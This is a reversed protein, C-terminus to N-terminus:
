IRIRNGRKGKKPRQEIVSQTYNNGFEYELFRNSLGLTELKQYTIEYEGPRYYGYYFVNEGSNYIKIFHKVLPLWGLPALQIGKLLDMNGFGFANMMIEAKITFNKMWQGEDDEFIKVGEKVDYAFPNNGLHNRVYQIFFDIQNDDEKNKINELFQFYGPLNRRIGIPALHAFSNPGFALGNRYFNYAFMDLGLKVIEEDKSYQTAEWTSMYLERQYPTLRGGNRFEIEPVPSKEPHKVKLAQFLSSNSLKPKATIQTRCLRIGFLLQTVELIDRYNIGGMFPGFYRGGDKKIKRTVSFSPFEERMNVKIYPYTKDDKLLINYKPKYKKILNNELALADIESNTIVYNFDAINAVMQMVKAPKPSNHFYQRVRNKLVRAKGVYIVNGYKDLMIYVGPNEPLLKLKERIINM